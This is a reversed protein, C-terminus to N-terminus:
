KKESRNAWEIYPYPNEYEEKVHEIFEDKSYYYDGDELIYGNKLRLILNCNNPNKFSWYTNVHTEYEECYFYYFHKLETLNSLPSIDEIMNRHLSLIELNKCSSLASVDTILNDSLLLCESKTLNSLSSIDTIQNSSAELVKLNTLKSLGELSHLQNFEIDLEELDLDFLEPVETVLDTLGCYCLYLGKCNDAKVKAILQKIAIRM